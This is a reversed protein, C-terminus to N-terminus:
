PQAKISIAFTIQAFVSSSQNTKKPSRVKWKGTARDFVFSKRKLTKSM